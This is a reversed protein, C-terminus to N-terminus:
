ALVDRTVEVMVKQIKPVVTPLFAAAPIRSPIDLTTRFHVQPECRSTSQGNGM